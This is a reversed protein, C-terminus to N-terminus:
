YLLNYGILQRFFQEKWSIGSKADCAIFLEYVSYSLLCQMYM